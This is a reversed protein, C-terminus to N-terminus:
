RGFGCWAAVWSLIRGRMDEGVFREIEGAEGGVVIRVDFITGRKDEQVAHPDCRFPVLPLDVVIPTTDGVAADVDVPFAGDVTEADFGILNTSQVGVITAAAAGTPTITLELRAPEGPAGPEFDTFSVDAAEALAQARCEREHLPALFGLAVAAPAEVETVAGDGDLLELVVIPAADAPAPCSVGPLQVRIDVVGGPAVRSTRDAVVRAAPGDLRPDEVRVAGVVLTDPTDNVVHVQAQRPAVDARLQLLSVELGDPALAPHASERGSPDADPAATCGALLFAGAVLAAIGARGARTM